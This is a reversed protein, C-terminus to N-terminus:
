RKSRTGGSKKMGAGFPFSLMVMTANYNDKFVTGDEPDTYASYHVSRHELSLALHSFLYFSAGVKFGKGADFHSDQIKSSVIYGGYLRFFKFRYGLLAAYENTNFKDGHGDKINLESRLYDAALQLGGIQLGAKGGYSLGYMSLLTTNQNSDYSLWSYGAGPEIFVSAKSHSSFLVALALLVLSKM